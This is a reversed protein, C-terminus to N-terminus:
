IFIKKSIVYKEIFYDKEIVSFNACFHACFKIKFISNIKSITKIQNVNKNKIKYILATYQL